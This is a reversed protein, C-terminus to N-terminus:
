EYRIERSPPPSGPRGEDDKYPAANPQQKSSPGEDKTEGVEDGTFSIDSLLWQLKTIWTRTSTDTSGKLMMTRSPHVIVLVAGGELTEEHISSCDRLFVWGRPSQSSETKFYCLTLEETSVAQVKFWRRTSDSTFFRKMSPGQKDKLKTLWGQLHEIEALRNAM